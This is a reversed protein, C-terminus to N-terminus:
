MYYVNFPTLVATLWAFVCLFHVHFDKKNRETICMNILYKVKKNVYLLQLMCVILPYACTVTFAYKWKMSNFTQKWQTVEM